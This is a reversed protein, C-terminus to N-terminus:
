HPQQQLCMVTRRVKEKNGKGTEEAILQEQMSEALSVM